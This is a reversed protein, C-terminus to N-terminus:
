RKRRRAPRERGTAEERALRDAKWEALQRGRSAARQGGAKAPRRRGGQAFGRDAVLRGTDSCASPPCKRRGSIEERRAGLTVHSARNNHNAGIWHRYATRARSSFSLRGHCTMGACSADDRNVGRGTAPVVQLDAGSALRIM